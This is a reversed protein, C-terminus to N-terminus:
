RRPRVALNVLFVKERGRHRLRAVLPGGSGSTAVLELALLNDGTALPASWELESRGEHGRVDVGFPLDLSFSVGDLSASSSFLLNVTRPQDFVLEVNVPREEGRPRPARVYLGTLLVTLVTAGFATLFGAAVWRPRRAPSM